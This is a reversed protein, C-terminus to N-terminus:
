NSGSQGVGINAGGGISMSAGPGGGAANYLTTGIGQINASGGYPNFSLQTQIGVFTQLGLATGTGTGVKYVDQALDATLDQTHVGLSPLQAQLGAIDGAQAVNYLGGSGVTAASQLLSGATGQYSTEHTVNDTALQSNLLTIANNNAASGDGSTAAGNLGTISFGQMQGTDAFAATSVLAVVITISIKKVM